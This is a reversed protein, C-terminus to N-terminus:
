LYQLLFKSIKESAFGDGYPNKKLIMNNYFKKNNLLKSVNGVIKKSNTGVLKLSGLELSENRETVDRMVLLPKHLTPAEEQVGGSDSLIFYSYKMLFVFVEYDVPKILHVNKINRLIKYVPKQVNPNLHVPYVFHVLPYKQSLNKISKCINFFGEGFNERRHGTILIYKKNLYEFPLLKDLYATIKNYILKDNKIKFNIYNLSDVVTNGTLIIKKKPINENILNKKNKLTPAFHFKTVKTIIQRNLEEPFPALLNNSRLGAEIHGVKYGFYFCALATTFATTTDGQVLTIDPKYNKIIKSIALLSRSTFNVLDQKKKMLNLDIDVSINFLKLVQDLMKRHQATVCVKLLFKNPYKKLSKIIPALKIAEPRTGFVILIKKKKM